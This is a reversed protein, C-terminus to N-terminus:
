ENQAEGEGEIIGDMKEDVSGLNTEMGTQRDKVIIEGVKELTGTSKM